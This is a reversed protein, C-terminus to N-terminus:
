KLTFTSRGILARDCYIKVIYTGAKLEVGEKIEAYMCLDLTANQYDIERKLSYPMPGEETNVSVSPNDSIITGGPTIVVM